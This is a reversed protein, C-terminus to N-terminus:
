LAGMLLLTLEDAVSGPGNLVIDTLGSITTVTAGSAISTSGITPALYSSSIGTLASGDGAFATATVTGGIDAGNKVKFNKDSM